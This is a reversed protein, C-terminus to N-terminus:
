SGVGEQVARGGVAQAEIWPVTRKIGEILPCRAQWGTSHLRPDSFNRSQVGVPGKVWEVNIRQGAVETM